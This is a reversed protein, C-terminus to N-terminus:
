TDGSKVRCLDSTMMVNILIEAEVGQSQFNEEASVEASGKELKGKPCGAFLIQYNRSPLSRLLPSVTIDRGLWPGGRSKDIGVGGVRSKWDM